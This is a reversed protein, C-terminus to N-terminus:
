TYNIYLFANMHSFLLILGGGLGSEPGVRLIVILTVITSLTDNVQHFCVSTNVHSM